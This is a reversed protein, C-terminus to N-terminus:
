HAPVLEHVHVSKGMVMAYVFLYQRTLKGLLNANSVGGNELRADATDRASKKRKSLIYEVLVGFVCCCVLVTLQTEYFNEHRM